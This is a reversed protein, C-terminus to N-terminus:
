TYRLYTIQGRRDSDKEGKEHSYITRLAKPAGVLSPSIKALFDVGKKLHM